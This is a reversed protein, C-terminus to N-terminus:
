EVLEVLDLVTFGLMTGESKLMVNCYPCAVYLINAGIKKIQEARERSIRKGVKIDFFAHGGGGGCFFTKAGRKELEIFNGASSMIERPERTIDDWRALYCPDHYTFSGEVKKVKLKGQKVLSWIVEAHHLVQYKADPNYQGIEHKFSNAGHPCNTVLKRFKLGGLTGACRTSMEKFLLEDGIRRAPDGCCPEEELIAFNLGAKRFAKITLEAVPRLEPNNSIMCGIWYIYEYEKGAQAFEVGLEERMRRRWKVSEFPDFGYPNGSKMLNYLAEQLKDPTQQGMPALNRRLDILTEVQHISVPCENVCAGCTVCSWVFDESLTEPVIATETRGHVAGKMSIMLKMPSLPKGTAYAPCANECRACSTCADFDMKQKWSFEAARSVGFGKGEEALEDLRLVPQLAAPELRSFYTNALGSVFIHSLKTFPIAAMSGMALCLHFLWLARYTELTFVIATALAHGVPDWLGVWSQRYFGTSAIDLLFGTLLIILLDLIILFDERGTPRDSPMGAIRRALMIALGVIALLGGINLSLKFTLYTQGTLFRLGFPLLLDSELFRLFTGVLLIVMGLYLPLHSLAMKKDLIVKGQLVGYRLMMKLRPGYPKFSAGESDRAWIRYSRYLGFVLSVAVLAALVYVVPALDSTYLYHEIEPFATPL